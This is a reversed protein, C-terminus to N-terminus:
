TYPNSEGQDKGTGLDANGALRMQMMGRGELSRVSFWLSTSNGCLETLAQTSHWCESCWYFRCPYPFPAWQEGGFEGEWWGRWRSFFGVLICPFWPSPIAPTSVELGKFLVGEDSNLVCSLPPHYLSFLQSFVCMTERGCTHMCAWVCVCVCVCVCVFSSPICVLIVLSQFTKLDATMLYLSHFKILVKLWSRVSASNM